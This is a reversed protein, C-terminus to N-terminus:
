EASTNGKNGNLLSDIAANALAQHEPTPTLAQGATTHDISQMPKGYYRDLLDKYLGEFRSNGSLMQRLGTEIIRDMTLDVGQKDKMGRIAREFDTKFNTVGLPRGNLNRRPDDGPQFPTGRVKEATNETPPVDDPTNDIPTDTM